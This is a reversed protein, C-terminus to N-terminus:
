RWYKDDERDMEWLSEALTPPSLRRAFFVWPEGDHMRAEESPDSFQVRMASQLKFFAM